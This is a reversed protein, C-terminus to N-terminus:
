KTRESSNEFDVEPRGRKSSDTKEPLSIEGDLWEKNNEQFRGEKRCAKIWRSKFQSKFLALKKSCQSDYLTRKKLEEDLFNFKKEIECSGCSTMIAILEKRKILM